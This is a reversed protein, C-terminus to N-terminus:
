SKHELLRSSVSAINGPLSTLDPPIRRAPRDPGFALLAPLGGAVVESFLLRPFWHRLSSAERSVSWCVGAFLSGDNTDCPLDM